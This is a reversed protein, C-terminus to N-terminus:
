CRTSSTALTRPEDDAYCPLALASHSRKSLAIRLPRRNRRSRRGRHHDAHRATRAKLVPELAPALNRSGRGSGSAGADASCASRHQGRRRPPVSRRRHRRRRPPHAPLPRESQRGVSARRAQRRESVLGANPGYVLVRGRYAPRPVACRLGRSRRWWRAGDPAPRSRGRRPPHADPGRADQRHPNEADRAARVAAFRQSSGIMAPPPAHRERIIETRGDLETLTIISRRRHRHRVHGPGHRTSSRRRSADRPLDHRAQLPKRREARRVREACSGLESRSIIASATGAAAGRRGSRRRDLGAREVRDAAISTAGYLPRLCGGLPLALAGARCRALRRM